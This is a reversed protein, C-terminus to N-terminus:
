ANKKARNVKAKCIPCEEKQKVWPGICSGCFNHLCPILSVCNYISELCIGCNFQDQLVNQNTKAGKEEDMYLQRITNIEGEETNSLGRKLKRTCEEAENEEELIPPLTKTKLSNSFNQSYLLLYSKSDKKLALVSGNLIAYKQNQPILQCNIEVLGQLPCVEARKSVNDFSVSCHIEEIGELEIQCDKGSGLTVENNEGTRYELKYEQM